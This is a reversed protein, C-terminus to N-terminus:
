QIFLPAIFVEILGSVLILIVGGVILYLADKLSSSMSESFKKMGRSYDLISASIVAGAIGGFFYGTIEPIGHLLYRILSFSIAGFYAASGGGNAVGLKIANGMAVGLVSANWTLIFIAGCGFIFSFLICLALIRFNNMTIRKFAEGTSLVAGTPSERTVAGSPMSSPVEGTVVMGSTGTGSANELNLVVNGTPSNIDTITNIQLFFLKNSIGSPLLLFWLVFALLMGLFLFIFFVIVDRHVRLKFGRTKQQKEKEFKMVKVIFPLVAMVSFTVMAFSAYAPFVWLSLLIALSSIIFGFILMEEPKREVELKLISEVVM